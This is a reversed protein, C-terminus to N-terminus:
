PFERFKTGTRKSLQTSHLSCPVGREREREREKERERKRERGRMCSELNLPSSLAANPFFAHCIDAYALHMGAESNVENSFTVGPLTPLNNSYTLFIHRQWRLIYKSVYHSTHSRHYRGGNCKSSRSVNIQARGNECLSPTNAWSQVVKSRMIM